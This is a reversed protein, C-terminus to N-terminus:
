KHITLKWVKKLKKFSAQATPVAQREMCMACKEKNNDKDTRGITVM